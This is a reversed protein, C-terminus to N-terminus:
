KSFPNVSEHKMAGHISEPLSLNSLVLMGNNYIGFIASGKPQIGFWRQGTDAYKDTIIEYDLVTGTGWNDDRPQAYYVTMKGNLQVDWRMWQNPFKNEDKIPQTYTWIGQMVQLAEEKSTPTKQEKGCGVISLCLLLVMAYIKM